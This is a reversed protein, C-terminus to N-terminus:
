VPALGTIVKTGVHILGSERRGGHDRRYFGKRQPKRLHGAIHNVGERGTDVDSLHSQWRAGHDHSVPM